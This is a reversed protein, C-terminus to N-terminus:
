EHQGFVTQYLLSFIAQHIWASHILITDVTDIAENNEGEEHSAWPRRHGGFM